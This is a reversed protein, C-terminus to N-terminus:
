LKESLREMRLTAVFATDSSYQAELDDLQQKVAATEADSTANKGQQVLLMYQEALRMMNQFEESRKGDVGMEGEAIEELSYNQPDDTLGLAAGNEEELNILEEEKLSQVIFPSHTTAVFQLKPFANQLNQVISKQWNPHLHIDLEDIMVIGRSNQVAQAGLENNLVICRFALEAVMEVFTAVGDSHRDIPMWISEESPLGTEPDTDFSVKLWLQDYNIDIKTIFPCAQQITELFVERSEKRENKNALLMPYTALWEKYQYTSSRMNAWNHYGEELIYRGIRDGKARVRKRSSGHLRDTGFYAIVPLNLPETNNSDKYAHYKAEAIDKIAGLEAYASTTTKSNEKIQRQWEIAAQGEEVIGQASVVVPRELLLSGMQGGETVRIDQEEIQRGKVEKLGTFYTGAAVRLGYLVTSKGSGNKGIIVTFPARFEFTKDEINRFNKLYLSKIFM